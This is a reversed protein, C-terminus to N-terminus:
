LFLFLLLFFFFFFLDFSHMYVVFVHFRTEVRLWSPKWIKRIFILHGVNKSHRTYILQKKKSYVSEGLVCVCVCLVLSFYVFLINLPYGVLLISRFLSLFFLFLTAYLRLTFLYSSTLRTIATTSTYTSIFPIKLFISYSSSYPPPHLNSPVSRSSLTYTPRVHGAKWEMRSSTCCLQKAHWM